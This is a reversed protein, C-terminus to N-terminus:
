TIRAQAKKENVLKIFVSWWWWEGGDGSGHIQIKM